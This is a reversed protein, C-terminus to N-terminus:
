TITGSLQRIETGFQKAMMEFMQQFMEKIKIEHQCKRKLDIRQTKGIAPNPCLIKHHGRNGCGNCIRENCACTDILHNNNLCRLCRKLANLRKIRSNVTKYIDCTNNFHDAGCFVCPKKPKSEKAKTLSEINKQNMREKFNSRKTTEEKIKTNEWKDEGHNKDDINPSILVTSFKSVPIVGPAGEAVKQKLTKQKTKRSTPQEAEVIGVSESILPFQTSADRQQEQSSRQETGYMQYQYSKNVAVLSKHKETLWEFCKMPDMDKPANMILEYPFKLLIVNSLLRNNIDDFKALDDLTRKIENLTEQVSESYFKAAPMLILAKQLCDIIRACPSM